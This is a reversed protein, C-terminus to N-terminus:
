IASWGRAPKTGNWGRGSIRCSCDLQDQKSDYFQCVHSGWPLDLLAQRARGQAVHVVGKSLLVPAARGDHRGFAGQAAALRPGCGSFLLADVTHESEPIVPSWSLKQSRARQPASVPQWRASHVPSRLEDTIPRQSDNSGLIAHAVLLRLDDRVGPLGSGRDGGPQRLVLGPAGHRVRAFREGPTDWRGRQEM